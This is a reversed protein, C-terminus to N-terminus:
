KQHRISRMKKILIREKEKELIKVSMLAWKLNTLLFKLSKTWFEECNFQIKVSYSIGSAPNELRAREIKYPFSISSQGKKSEKLQQLCDLFAVMATDLSNDWRFKFSGSGYLPVTKQEALFEIYSRNGYPVLKFKTFTFNLKKALAFLLLSAQGWANNIEEWNIRASPLYGLKFGNITGFNGEYWINFTADFANTKGLIMLKERTYELEHNLTTLNDQILHHSNLYKLYRKHYSEEKKLLQKNIEMQAEFETTVKEEEEKARSLESKLNEEEELLDKLEKGRQEVDIDFSEKELEMLFLQYDMIEDVVERRKHEMMLTLKEVCRRCTRDDIKADESSLNKELYESINIFCALEGPPEPPTELMTWGGFLKDADVQHDTDM